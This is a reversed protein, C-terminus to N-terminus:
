GIAALFCPCSEGPFSRFKIRESTVNYPARFITELVADPVEPLRLAEFIFSVSSAYIARIVANGM